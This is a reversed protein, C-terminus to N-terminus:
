SYGFTGVKFDSLKDYLLVHIFWFAKAFTLVFWAVGPFVFLFRSHLPSAFAFPLSTFFCAAIRAFRNAFLSLCSLPYSLGFFLLLLWSRWAFALLCVLLGAISWVISARRKELIQCHM